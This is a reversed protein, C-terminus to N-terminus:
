QRIKMNKFLFINKIHCSTFIKKATLMHSNLMTIVMDQFINKLKMMQKLVLYNKELMFMNKKEIESLFNGDKNNEDPGFVHLYDFSLFIEIEQHPSDRYPM